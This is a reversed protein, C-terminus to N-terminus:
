EKVKNKKLLMDLKKEVRTLMGIIQANDQNKTSFGDGNGLYVDWTGNDDICPFVDGAKPKGYIKFFSKKEKQIEINKGCICGGEIRRAFMSICNSCKGKECHMHINVEGVDPIMKTHLSNGMPKRCVVCTKNNM